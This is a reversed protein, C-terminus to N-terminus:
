AWVSLIADALPHGEYKRAVIHLAGLVVLVELSTVLAQIASIHIHPNM